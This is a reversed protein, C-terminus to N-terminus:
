LFRKKLTNVSELYIKFADHKKENQYLNVVKLVVDDYLHSFISKSNSLKKIERVIKPATKYYERVIEEGKPLKKVYNDRLDRLITLELCNDPLGKTETCASTLYCGTKEKMGEEWGEKYAKYEDSEPFLITSLGGLDNVMEDVFDAKKADEKGNEYDKSNNDGM